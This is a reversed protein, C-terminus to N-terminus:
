ARQWSPGAHPTYSPPERGVLSRSSPKCRPSRWSCPAHLADRRQADRRLGRGGPRLSALSPVQFSDRWWHRAGPRALFVMGNLLAREQHRRGDCELVTWIRVFCRRAAGMSRATDWAWCWRCLRRRAMKRSAVRAHGPTAAPWRRGPGPRDRPSARCLRAIGLGSQATPASRSRGIDPM